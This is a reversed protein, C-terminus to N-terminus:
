YDVSIFFYTLSIILPIVIFYDGMLLTLGKKNRWSFYEYLLVYAAHQLRFLESRLGVPIQLSLYLTENDKLNTKYAYKSIQTNKNM